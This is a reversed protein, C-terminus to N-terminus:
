NKETHHKKLLIAQITTIVLIRSVSLMLTLVLFFSLILIVNDPSLYAYILYFSGLMFTASIIVISLTKLIKKIAAKWWSRFFEKWTHEDLLTLFVILIYYVVVFGAVLYKTVTAVFDVDAADTILDKLLFYAFSFFSGLLVISVALYKLFMRGLMNFPIKKIVHHSLLWLGGHFVIFLAGMWSLGEIINQQLSQYSRQIIFMNELFPEGKQLEEPNYNATDLQGMITNMDTIIKVQYTIGVMGALALFIIQLIIISVVLRKNEKISSWFHIFGKKLYLM